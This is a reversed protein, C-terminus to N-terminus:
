RHDRFPPRSLSVSMAEGGRMRLVAPTGSPLCISKSDFKRGCIPCEWVEPIKMDPGGHPIPSDTM